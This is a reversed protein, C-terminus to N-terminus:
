DKPGDDWNFTVSTGITYKDYAYASENSANDTYIFNGSWTWRDTMIKNIGLNLSVETDTRSGNNNYNPYSQIYTTLASNWTVNKYSEIPAAYIVGLDWKTYAEYAGVTINDVFDLYGILARKKAADLFTTETKKLTWKIASMNQGAAPDPIQFADNRIDFTYSSFWHDNMVLMFDVDGTESDVLNQRNGTGTYDLYITDLGPTLTLKYGKKGVTGKKSYPAILTVEAPDGESFKSQMSYMYLGSLKISMDSADNYFLRREVDATGTFRLGGSGQPSQQSLNPELLINSDYGYGATADIIWKKAAMKKAALLGAIQSIYEDAKKDMVPDSSNDLVFEFSAQAEKYNEESFYVLGEYFAASPSLTANKARKVDSFLSKAQAFEKLKFHILGLYYKKELELGADVKALDLTMLADNLKENRYLSVGFQFYYSKNEPDLETAQRYMREANVYDGAAYFGNAQKAAIDADHQRKMKDASALKDMEKKKQDIRQQELQEQRLRDEEKSAAQKALNSMMTQQASVKAVQLQNDTAQPKVLNTNDPKGEAAKEQAYAKQARDLQEKTDFVDYIIKNKEERVLLPQATLKKDALMKHFRTTAAPDNRLSQPPIFVEPEVKEKDWSLSFQGQFLSSDPATEELLVKAIKDSKKDHIFMIASDITESNKNWTASGYNLTIPLANSKPEPSKQPAPADQALSLSSSVSLSLIILLWNNRV